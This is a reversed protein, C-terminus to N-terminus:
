NKFLLTSKCLLNKKCVDVNIQLFSSSLRHECKYIPLTMEIDVAKMIKCELPQMM